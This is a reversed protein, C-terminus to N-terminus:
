QLRYNPVFHLPAHSFFSAIIQLWPTIKEKEEEKTKLGFHVCETPILTFISGSHRQEMVLILQIFNLELM